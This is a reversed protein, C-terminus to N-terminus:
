IHILSLDLNRPNVTADGFLMVYRPGETWNAVAYGLFGRIAAPLPLGYGYQNIVDNISVVHTSLNSMSARHTRLQNAAALQDPHTIALWAGRGSAPRLDPARYKSISQVSRINDTTSALFETRAAHQSGIKVTYTGADAVIDNAGVSIQM